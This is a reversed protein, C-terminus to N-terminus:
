LYIACWGALMGMVFCDNSDMKKGHKVFVNLAWNLKTGDETKAVWKKSINYYMVKFIAFAALCFLYFLLFKGFFMLM